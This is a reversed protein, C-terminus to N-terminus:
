KYFNYSLVITGYQHSKANSDVAKSRQTIAFKTNWHKFSRQIGGEISLVIPKIDFTVIDNNNSRGGQITADHAVLKITPSLFWFKEKEETRKLNSFTSQNITNLHGTRYTFGLSANTALTGANVNIKGLLENKVSKNKTLSHIVSGNISGGLENNVQFEWGVPLEFNLMKHLLRQTDEALSAPGITGIELGALFVTNTTKAWTIDAGAYLYGAYPRDHLAAYKEIITFPSYIDQGVHVTIAKPLNSNGEIKKRFYIDLGNSYYKDGFFILYVDNDSTFGLESSHQGKVSLWLILLVGILFIRKPNM